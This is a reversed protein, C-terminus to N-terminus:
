TLARVCLAALGLVAIGMQLPRLRAFFRPATGGHAAVPDYFAVSAYGAILVPFALPGPLLLGALGCGFRVAMAVLQGATQGGETFFSLGRTVGALFLLIAAAWIQGAVLAVLVFSSSAWALVGAAAILLAPGYGLLQELPPTTAPTDERPSPM